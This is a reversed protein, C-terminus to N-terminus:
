GYVFDKLIFYNNTIDEVNTSYHDLYEHLENKSIPQHFCDIIIYDFKLRKLKLTKADGKFMTHGSMFRISEQIVEDNNEVIYFKCKPLIFRPIIMAGLGLMLIRSNDPIEQLPKNMQESYMKIFTKRHIDWSM